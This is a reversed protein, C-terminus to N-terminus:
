RSRIRNHLAMHNKLRAIKVYEAMDQKCADDDVQSPCIQRLRKIGRARIMALDRETESNIARRTFMHDDNHVQM